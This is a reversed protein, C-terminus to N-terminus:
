GKMQFPFVLEFSSESVELCVISGIVGVRFSLVISGMVGVRFSLGV